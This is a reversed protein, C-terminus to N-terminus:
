GSASVSWSCKTTIQLSFTGPGDHYSEVSSGKTGLQTVVGGKSSPSKDVVVQFDGKAGTSTCDYSWHLEWDSRTVKFTGTTKAGAGTM